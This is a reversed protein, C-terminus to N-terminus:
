SRGDRRPTDAQYPRHIHQLRADIEGTCCGRCKRIHYQLCLRGKGRKPIYEPTIPLRCTRVPYLKGILELVARAVLTNTYPAM